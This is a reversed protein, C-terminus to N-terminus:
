GHGTCARACLSAGLQDWHGDAARFVPTRLLVGAPPFATAAVVKHLLQVLLQTSRKAFESPHTAGAVLAYM